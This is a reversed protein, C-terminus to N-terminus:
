WVKRGVFERVERGLLGALTQRGIRIKAIGSMQDRLSGDNPLYSEAVYYRTNALGKYSTAPELGSDLSTSSPLVNAVRGHIPSTQGDLLLRIPQGTRVENVAFELVFMRARMASTDAIEAVVAGTELYTGKLNTIDDSMVIGQIPSAPTLKDVAEVSTAAEVAYQKSREAADGTNEYHLQADIQSGRAEALSKQAANRKSELDYDQL